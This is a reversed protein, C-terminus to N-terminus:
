ATVQVRKKARLHQYFDFLGPVTKTYHRNAFVWERASEALTRRLDPKEILLSLKDIFEKPDHYLLGTEGDVMEESYPPVAGALTVEPRHPMAAEYWKIASKGRNFINDVLPCLNIDADVITRLPKYADYPAWPHLELQEPPINDHVWKFETGWIVFKVKPYKQAVIRVADRLPFWDVLHSAGGQWLIRVEDAPREQLRPKPYDEPIVSNPFVYVDKCGVEDRYFDRLGNSPVTVADSRRATDFAMEVRRWNAEVDFTQNDHRTVGDEWVVIEAGDPFTTIIRDGRKLKEGNPSRVGLHVFAPNFPHLCDVRDDIDYVVSPPFLMETRDENWGPKMNGVINLVSEMNPGTLAYDVIVDATFMAQIADDNSQKGFDIFAEGLGLRYLSKAPTLLRYYLCGSPEGMAKAYLAFGPKKRDRV